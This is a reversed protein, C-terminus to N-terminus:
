ARHPGPHAPIGTRLRAAMAFATLPLTIALSILYFGAAVLPVRVPLRRARIVLFALLVPLAIMM